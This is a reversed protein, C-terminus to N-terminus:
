QEMRTNMTAYRNWGMGTCHPAGAIIPKNMLRPHNQSITNQIRRTSSALSIPRPYAALLGLVVM